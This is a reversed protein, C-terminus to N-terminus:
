VWKRSVVVDEEDETTLIEEQQGLPIDMFDDESDTDAYRPIRLPEAVINDVMKIESLSIHLNVM